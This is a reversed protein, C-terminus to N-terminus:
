FRLYSSLASLFYVTCLKGQQFRLSDQLDSPISCTCEPEIIFAGSSEFSGEYYKPLTFNKLIFGQCKVISMYVFLLTLLGKTSSLKM